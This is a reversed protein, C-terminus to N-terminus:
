KQPLYYNVYAYNFAWLLAVMVFVTRILSGFNISKKPQLRRQVPEPTYGERGATSWPDKSTHASM